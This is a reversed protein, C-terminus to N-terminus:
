SPGTLEWNGGLQECPCGKRRAKQIAKWREKQIFTPKRPSTAKPKGTPAARDTITM